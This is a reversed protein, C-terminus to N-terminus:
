AGTNPTQREPPWVMSYEVQQPFPIEINHQKFASWIAQNVESCITEDDMPHAIWFRLAYNIASDGYSLLLGKPTPHKLVRPVELATAELLAIVEAPNHHYAAGVSVQSRRMRDSATYTTAAETFFTQNPILLEANDRDRWLLTARLGLKRVECPDGDIMLVEGPRVSGEFLLWLGSVFNSYVEKIGFRRGGSLGGAIALLATGNFGVHFAVALLGVGVVAYRLILELAKRSGESIGLFRHALWALAAAPPASGLLLLYIVLLATCVKGLDISTNFLQGVQIVALDSISDLKDILVLTAGLLYLPRLLRSLLQHVREKPLWRQLQLELLGLLNWGLWFVGLLQLLGFAQHALPLLLGGLLMALGPGSIALLLNRWRRRLGAAAIRHRVLRRTLVVAAAFALLQLLVDGRELYGLWGLIERFLDRM